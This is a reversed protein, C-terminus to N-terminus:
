IVEEDATVNSVFVHIVQNHSFLAIAFPEKNFRHLISKHRCSSTFHELRNLLQLDRLAREYIQWLFFTRMRHITLLHFLDMPDFRLDDDLDGEIFSRNVLMQAM